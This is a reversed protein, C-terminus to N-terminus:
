KAVGRYYGSTNDVRAADADKYDGTVDTAIVGWTTLDVSYEVDFNTGAPFSLSVESAKRTVAGIELRTTPPDVPDPGASIPDDAKNPDREAALEALNILSDGDANGGPGADLNGFHTTEWDDPLGDLDTDGTNGTLTLSGNGSVSDDGEGFGFVALLDNASYPGPGGLDLLSFILSDNEDVAVFDAMKVDGDLVLRFDGGRIKLLATPSEYDYGFTVGGNVLLISGIGLSGPTAAVVDTGTVSILGTFDTGAGTLTILGTGTDDGQITLLPAGSLAAGLNFLHGQGDFIIEGNLALNGNLTNPNRIKLTTNSLSVNASATDTHNLRLSMGPGILSLSKGGFEGDVASVEATLSNIVVYDRNAQPAQGDSWTDALDWGGTNVGIVVDPKNTSITPDTNLAQEVNDAFTDGDTDVKNPDTGGQVEGGDGLTDTDTDAIQPDSGTDEASVFIGTATEVKDNLGDGDTDEANAATGLNHEEANTLGDGDLDGDADNSSADLDNLIEYADSLGDGDTDIVKSGFYCFFKAPIPGLDEPPTADGVKRWTLQVRDGM